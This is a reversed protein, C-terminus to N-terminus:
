SIVLGLEFRDRGSFGTHGIILFRGRQHEVVGIFVARDGEIDGRDTPHLGQHDLSGTAIGNPRIGVRATAPGLYGELLDRGPIRIDNEDYGIEARDIIDDGTQLRICM